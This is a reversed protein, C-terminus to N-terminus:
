PKDCHEMRIELGILGPPAVADPWRHPQGYRIENDTRGGGKQDCKARLRRERFVKVLPLLEEAIELDVEDDFDDM